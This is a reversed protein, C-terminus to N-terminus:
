MLVFNLGPVFFVIGWWPSYGTDAARRISMSVGIWIFPLSWLLLLFITYAPANSINPYRGSFLPNLFNKPYLYHETSYFYIQSEVLYKLLLLGVGWLFYPLRTVREQMGFLYNLQKM